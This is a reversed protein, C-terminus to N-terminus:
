GIEASWWEQIATAIEEPAEEQIYHAAGELIVTQHHPFVQEFHVLERDARLSSDANGWTLLVPLHSLRNLNREVEEFFPRSARLEHPFVWTPHRSERTPFPGRYAAMIEDTLERRNAVRPMFGVFANFNYILFKGIPGGVIRSFWKFSTVDTPPWAFTNGLVFGQFREPNRGAVGLGIPGGYDQGMLVINRLDLDRIFHEIVSAHEAPTFGYGPVATSLGFGPYDLAICRFDDKLAKVIDRYLFSWTPNGHLFVLTPGDGEDIYHIRSGDLEIFHSQFPYQSEPLWSPRDLDM